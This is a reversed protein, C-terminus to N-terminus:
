SHTLRQFRKLVQGLKPDDPSMRKVREAYQRARALQEPQVGEKEMRLILALAANLNIVKNNPMGEAAQDFLETAEALQQGQMLKVGKNNMEVVSQRIVHVFGDPDDSIGTERLADMVDLLADQDDHNNLVVDRLMAEAREKDGLHSCAKGMEIRLEPPASHGLQELVEDAEKLAGKAAADDGQNHAVAAQGIEAYFSSEPSKSFADPLKALVKKAEDHKGAASKAKALGAYTAPHKYISHEGWRVANGFAKEAAGFDEIQMSVDGLLHQRSVVKPSLEVATMLTHQAHEVFGTAKQAKALWDYAPTVSPSSAVLHELTEKAEQYRQQAYQVKGLGLQAWPVERTEIVKQYLQEAVDSKGARYLLDAKVKVLDPLNRPQDAILGDLKDLAKDYNNQRLAQNVPALSSKREILKQLRTRLLEKTFPKHLYSDPEYEVVGMVMQRTNEATIMVFIANVGLLERQRAEELVQQGDRGPGLNYDCLIVDYRRRQLAAIAESGNRVADIDSGGLSRLVGKITTRMDGFDDVVLYSKNGFVNTLM